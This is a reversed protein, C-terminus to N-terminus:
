GKVLYSVFETNLRANTVGAPKRVIILRSKGKEGTSVPAGTTVLFDSPKVLSIMDLPCQFIVMVKSPTFIVNGQSAGYVQVPVELIAETIEHVIFSIWVKQHSLIVGQMGTNKLALPIAQPKNVDHLVLRETEIFSIESISGADGSVDVSDPIIKVSGKLAFPKEFSIDTDAKVPIRKVAKGSISVVISDPDTAAVTYTKNGDDTSKQFSYIKEEVLKKADITFKRSGPQLFYKEMEVTIKRDEKSQKLAFAIHSFGTANVSATLSEPLDQDPVAGFPIKEYIIQFSYASLHIKGLANLLWFTLAVALCIFFATLRNNSKLKPSTISKLINM